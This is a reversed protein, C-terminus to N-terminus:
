RKKIIEKMFNEAKENSYLYKDSGEVTSLVRYIEENTLDTNNIYYSAYNPNCELSAAIFYPISYGWSYENYIPKINKDFLEYIKPINYNAGNEANLYSAILELNLNGAGRGMGFISADLIVDHDLNMELLSTANSFAQQM